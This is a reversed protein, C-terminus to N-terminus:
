KKPLFRYEYIDHGVEEAYKRSTISDEIIEKWTKLNGKGAAEPFLNTNEPFTNFIQSINVYSRLERSHLVLYYISRVGSLGEYYKIELEQSEKKQPFDANILNVVGPLNKELSSLEWKKQEMLMHLKEPDEAMVRRREKHVTQIALGKKILDEVNNHATSRKIGTERSLDMISSPGSKLLTLYLITENETLGFSALFEEIQKQKM